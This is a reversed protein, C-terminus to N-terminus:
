LKTKLKYLEQKPIDGKKNYQVRVYEGIEDEDEDAVSFNNLDSNLLEDFTKSSITKAIDNGKYDEIIIRTNM